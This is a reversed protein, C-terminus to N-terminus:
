GLFAHRMAQQQADAGRTELVDALREQTVSGLESVKAWVDGM